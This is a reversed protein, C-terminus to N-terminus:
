KKPAVIKAFIAERIFEVRSTNDRAAAKDLAALEEKEFKVQVTDM